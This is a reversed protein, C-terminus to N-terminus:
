RLLLPIDLQKGMVQPTGTETQTARHFRKYQINRDVSVPLRQRKGGRMMEMAVDREAMGTAQSVRADLM